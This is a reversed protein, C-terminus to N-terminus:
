HKNPSINVAEGRMIKLTTEHQPSTVAGKLLPDETEAMHQLLRGALENRLTAFQPKEGLDVQEWPDQTLDYLELHPHYASAPNEPVSPDAKPRWQQSPDMFAPAATFNAILKHTATRISRRPDYYGHYTLEGFIETNPKYSGGDLLPAFSHGQVNSPVPIGALDLITPLVDINSVMEERVVGGNWGKRGAHRLLLAIKLGPEYVSCKARPMAIGHDTTAIFLTNQELGLEQIAKVWRGFQEDMHRIAGQLGALEERTGPTDRLYPPVEVGLSDDPQLHPGPFGILGSMPGDGKPYPLRHPEIFGAFLYFPQGASALRKLEAIAADTGEAVKAKSVYKDYGCRQPGSRTEHLHGIASTAYGAEKLFQALHKEGPNLDWAFNAHTLGMVGNSHPYRGTFLSARSPSCGPQTCFSQSFRVGEAAFKDLNPTQVTKQGYCHLYQGFDHCHFIVLNPREAGNAITVGLGLCLAIASFFPFSKM